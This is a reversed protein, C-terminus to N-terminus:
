QIIEEESQCIKLFSKYMQNINIPELYKGTHNGVDDLVCERIKDSSLIYVEEDTHEKKYNEAWTSKGSAPLGVLMIFKNKKINDEM